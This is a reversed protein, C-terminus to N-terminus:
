PSWRDTIAVLSRKETRERVKKVCKRKSLDRRAYPESVEPQRGKTSKRRRKTIWRNINGSWQHQREVNYFEFYAKLGASVAAVTSHDHM